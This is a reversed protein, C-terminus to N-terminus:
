IHILSLEEEKRGYRTKKGIARTQRSGRVKRGEQYQSRQQFSRQAMDRYVKACRLESGSRVVYVTAEKGSKLPRVVEDIIGDDILPQLAPPTKMRDDPVDADKELRTYPPANYLGWLRAAHSDPCLNLERPAKSTWIASKAPNNDAPPRFSRATASRAAVPTRGTGRRLFAVTPDRRKAAAKRMQFIGHGNFRGDEFHLQLNVVHVTIIKVCM